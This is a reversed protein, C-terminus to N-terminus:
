TLRGSRAREIIAQVDESDHAGRLTPLAERRAFEDLRKASYRATYGSVAISKASFPACRTTTGYQWDEEAEVNLTAHYCKRSGLHSCRLTVYYRGVERGDSTEAFRENAPVDADGIVTALWRFTISRDGRVEEPETQVLGDIHVVTTM